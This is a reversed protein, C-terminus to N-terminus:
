GPERSWSFAVFVDLSCMMTDNYSNEEARGEELWNLEGFVVMPRPSETMREAKLSEM